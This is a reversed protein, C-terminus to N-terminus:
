GDALSGPRFPVGMVTHKDGTESDMVAAVLTRTDSRSSAGTVMGMVGRGMVRTKGKGDRQRQTQISDNGASWLSTSCLAPCPTLVQSIDSILTKGEMPSCGILSDSSSGPRGM